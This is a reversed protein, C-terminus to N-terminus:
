SQIIQPEQELTIGFKKQIAGIILEILALLEQFDAQGHTVLVLSNKDHLGVNKFHDTQLGANEILWGAPVKVKGDTAPFAKISAFKQKLEDFQKEPILPNKFFSGVNPIQKPDPLKTQRIAIVASRITGPSVETIKYQDLYRQLSDYFPPHMPANKLELTINMILYRGSAFSKFISNRYSFQCDQNSLTVFKNDLSDYAELEILTDKIEQGYAGVNQVPTAGATGPILSMAEVGSFKKAVLQAVVTDWNEGAGIKFRNPAIEEFGPIEVKIVLGPYGRDTFIINSGEGLPFFPLKKDQAWQVAEAAEDKTNVRTFYRAPGGIGITCFDKLPINEQIQM